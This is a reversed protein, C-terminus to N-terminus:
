REVGGVRLLYDTVAQMPKRLREIDNGIYGATVDQSMKHNVLRKVAYASIDLREAYTVFTRRLDHFTFAVGSAESIRQAHKRPEKLHTDGKESPFVWASGETVQRREKLLALLFDSLPLTHDEGNKTDRVTFAKNALDVDAWALSAAESRRLGTFVMFLLYDAVTVATGIGANQKYAIVAKFWAPLEAESIFRNRRKEKNWSRTASLRVVPNVPLLSNGDDDEYTSAAFNYVSRLVRMTLNAYAGGSDRTLQQHRKAVMDKTLRRLERGQWDKLANEM